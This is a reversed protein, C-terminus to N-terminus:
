WGGWEANLNLVYNHKESSSDEGKSALFHTLFEAYKARDLQDAPFNESCDQIKLPSSWDITIQSTM